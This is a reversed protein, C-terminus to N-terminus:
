ASASASASYNMIKNSPVHTVTLKDYSLSVQEGISAEGGGSGGGWSVSKITVLEMEFKYIPEAVKDDSSGDMTLIAKDIVTGKLCCTLLGPSEQAAVKSVSIESPSANGPVSKGKYAATPRGGEHVAGFGFSDIAIHQKYNKREVTGDIDKGAGAGEFKLYLQAM